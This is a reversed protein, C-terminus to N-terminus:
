LLRRRLARWLSPVLDSMHSMFGTGGELEATRLGFLEPHVCDMFNVDAIEALGHAAIQHWSPSGRRVYLFANQRYWFCVEKHGWYVPRFLDFSAFDHDAFRRAWYSHPQENIHNTGGQKSYAASFLVVDSAATICKVFQPATSPSLHEAVELTIALDVKGPVSFPKNLDISQFEVASDIMASQSNWDGDFGLLSRSGLEHCAKLWAGRGCGVDLVSAPQLFQWLYGLYIRASQLSTAVQGEYFSADYFETLRPKFHPVEYPSADAGTTM